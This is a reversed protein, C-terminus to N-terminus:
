VESCDTGAAAPETEEKATGTPTQNWPAKAILMGMACTDTVGAFVLGAGVFGSLWLFAPHVFQALLVGGFVLSGTGIRVQRELSIVGSKGREVPFGAKEWALTGGEVVHCRSYGARELRDAAMTARHGSRCLLYLPADKQIGGDALNEANLQDLPALQADPVHVRQFEGPTRVDLVTLTPDNQLRERLTSPSIAKM